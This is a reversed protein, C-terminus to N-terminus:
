KYVLCKLKKLVHLVEELNWDCDYTDEYWDIAIKELPNFTCSELFDPDNLMKRLAKIHGKVNTHTHVIEYGKDQMTLRKVSDITLMSKVLVYTDEDTFKKLKALNGNITTKCKDIIDEEEEFVLGQIMVELMSIGLAWVDSTKDVIDEFVQPSRYNATYIYDCEQSPSHSAFGYDCLKIHMGDYVLFNATKIDGHVINLSHLESLGNMCDKVIGSYYRQRVSKKSNMAWNWLNDIALDMVYGINGERLKYHLAYVCNEANVKKLLAMVGFEKVVSSDFKIFQKFAYEKGDRTCKYVKGYTGSGLCKQSLTYKM